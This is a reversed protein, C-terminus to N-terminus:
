LTHSNGLYVFASCDLCFDVKVFETWKSFASLWTPSSPSILTNPGPPPCPSLFLLINAQHINLKHLCSHHLFFTVDM